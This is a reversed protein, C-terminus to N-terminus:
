AAQASRARHAFEAARQERGNGPWFGLAFVLLPLASRGMANSGAFWIFGLLLVGLTVSAFWSSLRTFLASLLTVLVLLIILSM